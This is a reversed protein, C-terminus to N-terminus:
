LCSAAENLVVVEYDVLRLTMKYNCSQDGNVARTNIVTKAIATGDAQVVSRENAVSKSEGIVVGGESVTTRTILHLNLSSGATTENYKATGTVEFCYLTGADDFCWSDDLSASTPSAAAFATSSGALVIVTAAVIPAIVRFLRRM